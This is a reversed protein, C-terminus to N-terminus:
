PKDLYSRLQDARHRKKLKNLVKEKIQRIRERTLGLDIGIEKLTYPRVHNIGYYMYLIKRERETFDDLILDLEEKFLEDFLKRELYSAEAPIVNTLDADNETHPEDLAIVTYNFAADKLIAPDGLYELLEEQSPARDLRQELVQKAKTIKTVNAIKNLPLRIMKAHEHIANIISQRIWWVAYTIFKVDRSVDFRDFAKCIGMNGEAVLEELTLGQYQYKKAVSVVFKLNANILKLYAERSGAKAKVMLVHEEAKTFPQFKHILKFYQEM